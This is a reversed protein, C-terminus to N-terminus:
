FVVFECPTEGAPNKVKSGVATQFFAVLDKGPDALSPRAILRYESLGSKGSNWAPLLNM